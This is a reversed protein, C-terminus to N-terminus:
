ANMETVYRGAVGDAIVSAHDSVQQTVERFTHYGKFRTTQNRSGVGELWPGYIVGGDNVDLDDKQRETQIQSEYYGTPHQLVQRLRAKVANVAYQGVAEEAAVVLADASAAARGDFVPGSITVSTM